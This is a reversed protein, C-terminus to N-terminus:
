YLRNGQPGKPPHPGVGYRKLNEMIGKTRELIDQTKYSEEYIYFDDQFKKKIIKLLDSSIDNRKKKLNNFKFDNDYIQPFYDKYKMKLFFACEFFNEIPLLILNGTTIKKNLFKIKNKKIIHNTNYFM